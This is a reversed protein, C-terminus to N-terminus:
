GATIITMSRRTACRKRYVAWASRASANLPYAVRWNPPDTDDWGARLQQESAAMSNIAKVLRGAPAAPRMLQVRRTFAETEFFWGKFKLWREWYLDELPALCLPAAPDPVFATFSLQCAGKHAESKIRLVALKLDEWDDDSEGPLGAIMFWRVGIGDNLLKVTLDVLGKTPIPKGVLRRLNESVAEVGFRISKVKHSLTVGGDLLALTQSYSASYHAQTRLENAFALASADNTVLATPQGASILRDQQDLMKATDPNERYPTAWGTQCFLCKKKCGRSAFLRIIGDEYRVPPLDWPFEDDPIVRRVEGPVWANPCKKAASLGDRILTQIFRRGEGVCVVDAREDLIAPSLGIGGGVIVAQNPSRHSRRPEIGHGRLARDFTMIDHPAPYTVLVVDATRPDSVVKADLGKLEWALYKAAMGRFRAADKGYAADLIAYSTSQM